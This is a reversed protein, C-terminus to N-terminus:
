NKGKKIFERLFNNILTQYGIKKESAIKKLYLLIDNDLRMSTSIKRPRYFRGRIGKSFDYEEKLEFDDKQKIISTKM